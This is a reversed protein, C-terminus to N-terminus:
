PRVTPASTGAIPITPGITGHPATLPVTQPAKTVNAPYNLLALALLQDYLVEKTRRAPFTTVTLVAGALGAVALIWSAPTHFGRFIGDIWLVVFPPLLGAGFRVEAELREGEAWFSASGRVLRKAFHFFPAYHGPDRVGCDRALDKLSQCLVPNALADEFPKELTAADARLPAAWRQWTLYNMLRISVLRILFGLVYAVTLWGCGAVWANSLPPIRGALRQALEASNVNPFPLLLLAVVLAAGPILVGLVDVITVTMRNM